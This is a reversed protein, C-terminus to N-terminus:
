HFAAVDISDPVHLLETEAVIRQFGIYVLRNYFLFHPNRQHGRWLLRTLFPGNASKLTSQLDRFNAASQATRLDCFAAMAQM